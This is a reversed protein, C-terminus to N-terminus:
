KISKKAITCTKMVSIVFAKERAVIADFVQWNLDVKALKANMANSIRYSRSIFSLCDVIIQM